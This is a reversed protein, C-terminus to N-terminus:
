TLQRGLVNCIGSTRKAIGTETEGELVFYRPILFRERQARWRRPRTTFSSTFGAERVIRDLDKTYEGKGGYPYAFSSIGTQTIEELKRKSREIDRAFELDSLENPKKHQSTHCGIDAYESESLLKIDYEELLDSAKDTLGLREIYEAKNVDSDLHGTSIFFTAHARQRELIPLVTDIWEKYGDDFTICAHRRDTREPPYELADELRKIEYEEALMQILRELYGSSVCFEDDSENVVDKVRHLCFIDVENSWRQFIKSCSKLLGTGGQTMM